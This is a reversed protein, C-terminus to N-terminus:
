GMQRAVEKALELRKEAYIQTTRDERELVHLVQYVELRKVEFHAALEDITVGRGALLEEDRIYNAVGDTLKTRKSRTM